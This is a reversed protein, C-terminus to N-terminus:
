AKKKGAKPKEYGSVDPERTLMERAAAKRAWHVALNPNAEPKGFRLSQYESTQDFFIDTVVGIPPTNHMNRVTSVYADFAKVGTPSVELLWMPAEPDSAADGAGAVVALLRHNGCAKGKGKSGWANNPCKACSEAQKDPSNASPVLSGPELGIAFCAPPTIEGETYPRDFFKNAAVFDLIVATLPGPHKTGDPLKFHKDKTLKIKNGGPAEIRKALEAAEKEAEARIEAPLQKKTTTVATGKAM